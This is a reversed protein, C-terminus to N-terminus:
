KHKSEEVKTEAGDGISGSNSTTEEDRRDDDAARETSKESKSNARDEDASDSAGSKGSVDVRSHIRDKTSSGHESTHGSGGQRDGGHHYLDRGVRLEDKGDQDANYDGRDRRILQDADRQVVLM